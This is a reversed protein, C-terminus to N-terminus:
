QKEVKRGLATDLAEKLNAVPILEINGKYNKFSKHNNKPIICHKFGLKEAENVRLM